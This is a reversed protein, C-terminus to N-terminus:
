KKEVFEKFRQLYDQSMKKFTGKFYPFMCSMIYSNARITSHQVVKTVGNESTFNFADIKIMQDSSFNFIMKKNKIYATITEKMVATQGQNDVTMKYTSGVIEDKEEIPEIAIIEPLWEKMTQPNEFTSFVIEIPKKIEIESTYTVEQVVIGTAFFVVTLAIVIGLIIKVAKM